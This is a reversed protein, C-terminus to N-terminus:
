QSTAELTQCSLTSAYPPEECRAALQGPRDLGNFLRHHYLRAMQQGVAYALYEDAALLESADCADMVRVLADTEPEPPATVAIGIDATLEALFTQECANRPEPPESYTLPESDSFITTACASAFLALSSLAVFLMARNSARVHTHMIGREPPPDIM